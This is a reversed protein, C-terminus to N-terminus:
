ITSLWKFNFKISSDNLLIYQSFLIKLFGPIEEPIKKATEQSDM